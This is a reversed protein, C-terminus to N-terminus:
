RLESSTAAVAQKMATLIRPVCASANFDREVIARGAVGMSRRLDSDGLLTRMAEALAVADDPEILFGTEGQRVIDPIGGMRTTIVPRGTAMAEMAVISSVDARTPLVFLDANGYLSRLRSDNNGLDAYARVNRPLNKPVQKTVLHLDASDAFNRTFVDLLLDGGKRVFDGGVFLIQPRTGTPANPKPLFPWLELDIGVNIVHVKDPAIGCDRTFVDAAWRSWPFFLSARRACWADFYFRLRQRRRSRAHNGGYQPHQSPDSMPPNDQSWVLLPRRHGGSRLVSVVYPEFAHFMIADLRNFQSMVPKAEHMVIARTRLPGPLRRFPDPELYHKIPAWVCEVEADREAYKRLNLYRTMNGAATTLVFGFRYKKESELSNM